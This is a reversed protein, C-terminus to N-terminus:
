SAEVVARLARTRNLWGHLFRAQTGIAIARLFAERADLAAHALAIPDAAGVAQATMPGWLGDIQSAAFGLAKQLWKVSRAPGSNVAADFVVLSLPWPMVDAHTRVWYGDRYIAEMEETTIALVPSIDMSLRRRYADYTAQTVGHNTAGGRDAPDDVYGGEWALTFALARPLNTM